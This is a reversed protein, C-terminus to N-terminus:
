TLYLSRKPPTPSPLIELAKFEVYRENTTIADLDFFKPIAVRVFAKFFLPIYQTVAPTSTVKLILFVEFLLPTTGIGVGRFTLAPIINAKELRRKLLGVYRKGPPNKVV